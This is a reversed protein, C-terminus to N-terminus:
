CGTTVVTIAPANGPATPATYTIRCSAPTAAGLIDLTISNGAGGGGASVTLSDNTANLQAATLIGALNATPYRHVMTVNTGEM